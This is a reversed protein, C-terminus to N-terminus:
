KIEFRVLPSTRIARDLQQKYWASRFSNREVIGRKQLTQTCELEPGYHLASSYVDFATMRIVGDGKPRGPNPHPHWAFVM